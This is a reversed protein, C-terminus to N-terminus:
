FNSDVLVDFNSTMGVNDSDSQTQTDNQQKVSNIYRNNLPTRPPRRTFKGYIEMALPYAVTYSAEKHWPSPM